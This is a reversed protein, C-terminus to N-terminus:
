RLRRNLFSLVPSLVTLVDNINEVSHAEFKKNLRLLETQFHLFSEFPVRTDNIPHIICLPAKMRELNTIVSREEMITKKDAPTGDFLMEIFHKFM